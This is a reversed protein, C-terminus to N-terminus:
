RKVRGGIVSARWDGGLPLAIAVGPLIEERERAGQEKHNASRLGTEGRTPM